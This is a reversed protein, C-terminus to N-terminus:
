RTNNKYARWISMMNRCWIQLLPNGQAHTSDQGAPFAALRGQLMCRMNGMSALTDIPFGKATKYWKHVVQKSEYNYVYKDERKVQSVKM